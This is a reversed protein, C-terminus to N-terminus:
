FAVTCLLIAPPAPFATQSLCRGAHNDNAFPCTQMSWNHAPSCRRRSHYVTGSFVLLRTCFAQLRQADKCVYKQVQHPISGWCRGSEWFRELGICHSAVRLPLTSGILARRINLWLQNM